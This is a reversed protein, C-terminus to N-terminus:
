CVINISSHQCEAKQIYSDQSQQKCHYLIKKESGFDLIQFVGMDFCFKAKNSENNTQWNSIPDEMGM